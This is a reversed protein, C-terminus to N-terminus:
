KLLEDITINLGHAIKTVTDITPNKIVDSEIKALTAYPIGAQKSLADQTMNKVKRWYKIKQGITKEEM